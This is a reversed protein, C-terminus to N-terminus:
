PQEGVDSNAAAVPLPFQVAREEAHLASPKLLSKTSIELYTILSLYSSELHNTNFSTSTFSALDRSILMWCISGLKSSQVM